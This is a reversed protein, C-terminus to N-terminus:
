QTHLFTARYRKAYGGQYSLVGFVRGEPRFSELIVGAWAFGEQDVLVSRVGTAQYARFAAEVFGISPTDPALIAGNVVTRGGRAGLDLAQLGDVGPYGSLQRAKVAPETNCDFVFGLDYGDFSAM